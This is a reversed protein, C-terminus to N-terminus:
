RPGRGRRCAGGRMRLRARCLAAVVLELHRNRGPIRNGVRRDSGTARGARPPELAGHRGARASGPAARGSPRCRASPDRCLRWPRRTRVPRDCPARRGARRGRQGPAALWGRGLRLHGGAASVYSEIVMRRVHGGFFAAPDASLVDPDAITDSLGGNVMTGRVTISRRPRSVPGTRRSFRSLRRDALGRRGANATGRVLVPGPMRQDIRSAAIVGDPERLGSVAVWDGPHVTRPGETGSEIAVPRAPSSSRRLTRDWMLCQGVDGARVGTACTSASPM